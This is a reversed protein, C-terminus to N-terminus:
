CRKSQELHKVHCVGIVSRTAQTTCTIRSGYFESGFKGHEVGWDGCNIPLHMWNTSSAISTTFPVLASAAHTLVRIHEISARVANTAFVGLNDNLFTRFFGMGGTIVPYGRIEFPFRAGAYYALADLNSYVNANLTPKGCYPDFHRGTVDDADRTCRCNSPDITRDLVADAKRSECTVPAMRPYWMGDIDQILTWPAVLSQAHIIDVLLSRFLNMSTYLLGVGALGATQVICPLPPGTQAVEQQGASCTSETAGSCLQERM